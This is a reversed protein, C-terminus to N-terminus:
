LEEEETLLSELQEVTEVIYSAGHAELEARSGYGYLVGIGPIGTQRAADMDYLRDGVMVTHQKDAGLAEIAELILQPKSCQQDSKSASVFDILDTLGTTKLHLRSIADLKATAIGIKVGKERLRKLLEPIGPYPHLLCLAMPDNAHSRYISIAKDVYKEPLQLYNAFGERLPPGVMPRLATDSWAALENLGIERLTRRLTYIICPGSEILTGDFDFLIASYKMKM